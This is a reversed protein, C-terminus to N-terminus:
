RGSTPVGGGTTFERRTLVGDGNVDQQTFSRRSWRWEDATLRGDRNADLAGFQDWGSANGVMEARNLLNDNNRDLWDFADADGHWERRDIVGNGNADLNQFQDGRDDDFDGGLFENRSLFGDRNRDARVFSQNDHYWERSSVRGDNNRDIQSFTAEDWGSFGNDRNYDEEDASRASRRGGFRVEDGSLVDDSNWDHTAFSGRTGTWESRQIAGDGNRDMSAFRNRTSSQGRSTRGPACFRMSSGPVGNDGFKSTYEGSGLLTEIVPGYGEANARKVNLQLGGPDPDRGLIHKYLATVGAERSGSLFRQQYEPTQVVSRVLERVTSQGNALPAIMDDTPNFSREFLRQYMETTVQRADTTCPQQAAGVIPTLVMAGILFMGRWM